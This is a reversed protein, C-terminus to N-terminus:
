RSMLTSRATRRGQGRLRELFQMGTLRPMQHDLIIADYDRSELKNLAEIGDGATDVEYGEKRLNASMVLQIDPEDDVILVTGKM